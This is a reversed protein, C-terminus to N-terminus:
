REEDEELPLEKSDNSQKKTLIESKEIMENLNCWAIYTISGDENLIGIRLMVEANNEVGIKYLEDIDELAGDQLVENDKIVRVSDCYLNDYDYAMQAIDSENQYSTKYVKDGKKLSIGNKFHNKIISEKKQQITEGTEGQEQVEEPMVNEDRELQENEKVEEEMVKEIEPTEQVNSDICNKIFFGTSIGLTALAAIVAMAKLESRNCRFKINDVANGVEFSVNEMAFKINCFTDQVFFEMNNAIYKMKQNIIDTLGRGNKRVSFRKTELNAFSPKKIKHRIETAMPVSEENEPNIIEKDTKLQFTNQIKKGIKGIFTETGNTIENGLISYTINKQLDKVDTIELKRDQKSDARELMTEITESLETEKEDSDIIYRNLEDYFEQESECKKFRKLQRIKNEFNICFREIGRLLEENKESRKLEKQMKKAELYKKVMEREAERVYMYDLTRIFLIGVEKSIKLTNFIYGYDGDKFKKMEEIANSSRMELRKQIIDFIHTLKEYSIDEDNKLINKRFWETYGENAGRGFENNYIRTHFLKMTIGSIQEMVRNVKSTRLYEYFKPDRDVMKLLGTGLVQGREDRRILFKHILEHLSVGRYHKINADFEYSDLKHGLQAFLAITPEDMEAYGAIHEDFPKLELKKFEKEFKNVIEDRKFGGYSQFYILGLFIMKAKIVEVDNM